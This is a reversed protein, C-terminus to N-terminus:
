LMLELLMGMGHYCSSAKHRATHCYQLKGQTCRRAAVQTVLTSRTLYLQWYLRPPLDTAHLFTSGSSCFSRYVNALSSRCLHWHRAVNEVLHTYLMVTTSYASFRLRTLVHSQDAARNDSAYSFIGTNDCMDTAHTFYSDSSLSYIFTAHLSTVSTAYINILSKSFVQIISTRFVYLSM